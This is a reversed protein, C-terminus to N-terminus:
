SFRHNPLSAPLQGSQHALVMSFLGHKRGSSLMTGITETTVNQFEDIYLALPVRHAPPVDARSLVAALIKTVLVAGLFSADGAGLRGTSLSLLINKRSDILSRIDITSRSQGVIRRLLL